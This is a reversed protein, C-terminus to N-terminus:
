KKSAQEIENHLYSNNKRFERPTCRVEEKFVKTFYSYDSFGVEYAIDSIPFNTSSLLEKATQIRLNKVHKMIGVGFM